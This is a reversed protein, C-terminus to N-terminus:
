FDCLLVLLGNKYHLNSIENESGIQVHMKRQGQLHGHHCHILHISIQRHHFSIAVPVVGVRPWGICSCSKKHQAFGGELSGRKVHRSNRPKVKENDTCEHSKCKIKACQRSIFSCYISLLMPLRLWSLSLFSFPLCYLASYGNKLM